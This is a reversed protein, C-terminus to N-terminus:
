RLVSCSDDHSDRRYRRQHSAPDIPGHVPKGHMPGFREGDPWALAVPLLRKPTKGRVTNVRYRSSYRSPCRAGRAALVCFQPIRDGRYNVPGRGGRDHMDFKGARGAFDRARAMDQTQAAATGLAGHQEIATEELSAALFAALLILFERQGDLFDVRDHQAVRVDVVRPTQGIQHGLAVLAGDKGGTGRAVEARDHQRVRRMDLLHVASSWM